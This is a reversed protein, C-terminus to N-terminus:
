FGTALFAMTDVGDAYDGLGPRQAQGFDFTPVDLLGPRAVVLQLESERERLEQTVAGLSNYYSFYLGSIHSALQESERLIIAGNHYFPEKNLTLLAFNYDFNNKWKVHNQYGKWEHFHELLPDFDYGRPVYIKSVNRCGLGFYAFVDDGLRELEEETEHGTLVAVANRNRRIIHPYKGFYAEFYRSSNNSGTAVIADFGHLHEAITFYAEVRADYKALLQLLYPLVYPDKSSLKIQARHGALFVSFVDHLGVLPINGALVLGVTKKPPFAPAAIPYDSLWERLKNEQLFEDIVARLARQQNALTLWNNNFETRKMLATLFEDEDSNLHRALRLLISIRDDLTM